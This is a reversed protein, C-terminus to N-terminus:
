RRKAGPPLDACVGGTRSDRPRVPSQPRDRIARKVGNIFQLYTPSHERVGANIRQVWLGRFDRQKARRDRYAYQLYERGERHRHPLQHRAPRCLGQGHRRDETVVHSTVSRKTRAM